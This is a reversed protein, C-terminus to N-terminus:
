APVPLRRAGQGGQRFRDAAARVQSELGDPRWAIRVLGQWDQRFDPDKNSGHQALYDLATAVDGSEATLGVLRDQLRYQTQLVSGKRDKTLVHLQVARRLADHARLKAALLKHVDRRGSRAKEITELWRWLLPAEAPGILFEDIGRTILKALIVTVELANTWDDRPLLEDYDTILEVLGILRASSIAALLEDYSRVTSGLWRDRRPLPYVTLGMEAFLTSVLQQDSVDADVRQILQRALRPSNDGGQNTLTAIAARWWARDRHPLLADAADERERYFRDPSLVITELIEALEAALPTGVLGEILLSRLHVSSTATAIIAEIRPRLAPIILGAATRSDWDASRFYPDDEALRCLAEFLRDALRLTLEATEGYRLVGYPDEAIVREAMAPSHYALWSHLGRLGAPVGGGELQALLRRQARPTVAQRALWRAGLFEAIVRHIPKARLSGISHFLKSSFIARAAKADPLKELDVLRVDGQQVQAAGAASVAEAGAFLLGAAIAGAADLAEDNSLQALGEDQRGPDHEPWTLACVREFLAARTAPLYTDTQAVRGMLGLTLPNRFLERLNHESLHDLVHDANLNPHRALLFAKAEAREFPELTLVKPDAGYLHRLNTVSREQWERSRCSLIFPPSAAEELQALIADIADGERRSMAEDLGDILLPKGVIVFKVPKRANIFRIATVPKVGIQRGLERMLESKGMGPEGLVVKSGSLAVLGAEDLQQDLVSTDALALRRPFYAM